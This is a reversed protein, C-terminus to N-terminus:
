HQANATTQNALQPLPRPRAFRGHGAEREVRFQKLYVFSATRAFVRRHTACRHAGRAFLHCQLVHLLLRPQAFHHQQGLHAVTREHVAVAHRKAGTLHTTGHQARVCREVQLIRKIRAFHRARLEADDNTLQEVREGIKVRAVDNM